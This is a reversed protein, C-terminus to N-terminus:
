GNLDRTTIQSSSSIAAASRRLIISAEIGELTAAIRDVRMMIERWDSRSVLVHDSQEDPQDADM